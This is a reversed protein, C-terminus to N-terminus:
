FPFPYYNLGVAELLEEVLDGPFEIEQRDAGSSDKGWSHHLEANSYRSDFVIRVTPGGCALLMEVRSVGNAAGTHAEANCLVVWELVTEDLWTGLEVGDDYGEFVGILANRFESELRDRFKFIDERHSM